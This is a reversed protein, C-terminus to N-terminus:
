STEPPKQRNNWRENAERFQSNFNFCKKENMCESFVHCNIKQIKKATTANLLKAIEAFLYPVFSSSPKIHPLKRNKNIKKKKGLFHQM